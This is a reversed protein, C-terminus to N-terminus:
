GLSPPRISDWPINQIYDFISGYGMYICAAEAICMLGLILLIPWCNFIKGFLQVAEEGFKLVSYVLGGIVFAIIVRPWGTAIVTLDIDGIFQGNLDGLLIYVVAMVFLGIVVAVHLDRFPRIILAFAAIAILVLTYFQANFGETVALFAIVVGLVFGVLVAAKYKASEKDKLYLAVIILSMIGGLLLVIPALYLVVWEPVGYDVLSM